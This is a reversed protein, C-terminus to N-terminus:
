WLVPRGDERYEMVNIIRPSSLDKAINFEHKLLAIEAKDSKINERLVKIAFREQSNEEVAEWVESTTGARILRALRYPGLFDRSKSM